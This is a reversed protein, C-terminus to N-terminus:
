RRPEKSVPSGGFAPLSRGSVAIRMVQHEATGLVGQAFRYAQDPTLRNGGMFAGGSNATHLHTSLPNM